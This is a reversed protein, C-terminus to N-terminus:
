SFRGRLRELMRRRMSEQISEVMQFAPKLTPSIQSSIVMKKRRKRVRPTQFATNSIAPSPM